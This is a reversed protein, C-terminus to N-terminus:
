GPSRPVHQSVLEVRTGDVTGTIDLNDACARMILLGMGREPDDQPTKWSGDDSITFVARREGSDATAIHGRLRVIGPHDLSEHPVLYGHEVSNSVAESIALVLEETRDPPWRHGELWLQTRDRALSAAIWHASLDVDLTAPPIPGPEGRRLPAPRHERQQGTPPAM